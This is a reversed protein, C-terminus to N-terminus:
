APASKPWDIQKGKPVGATRRHPNIESIDIPIPVIINNHRVHQGARMLLPHSLQHSVNGVRFRAFLAIDPRLVIAVHQEEASRVSGIRFSGQHGTHRGGIPGPAGNKDVDIQVTVFIKKHRISEFVVHHILVAGIFQPVRSPTQSLRFQLARELQM